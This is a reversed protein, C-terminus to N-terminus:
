FFSIHFCYVLYSSRGKRKFHQLINSHLSITRTRMIKEYSNQKYIAINMSHKRKTIKQMGWWHFQLLDLCNTEMRTLSRNIAKEVDERSKFGPRPVWKTFLELRGSYSHRLRAMLVEAPGYHDAGDFSTFGAEALERM